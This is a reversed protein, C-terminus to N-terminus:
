KEGGIRHNPLSNNCDTLVSQVPDHRLPLDPVGGVAKKIQELLAAITWQELYDELVHEARSFTDEMVMRIGSLECDDATPSCWNLKLATCSTTRYIRALTCEEPDCNLRYGGGLGEKTMVLRDKRLISMIKRIRAPHTHVKRSLSESNWLHDPASALMILCHVAITFESNM